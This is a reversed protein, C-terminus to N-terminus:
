CWSKAGGLGGEWNHEPMRARCAAGTAIAAGRRSRSVRPAAPPTSPRRRPPPPKAVRGASRLQRSSCRASRRLRPGRRARGRPAGGGGREQSPLQPLGLTVRIWAPLQRVRQHRRVWGRRRCPALALGAVPRGPSRQRCNAPWSLAVKESTRGSKARPRAAAHPWGDAEATSSCRERSVPSGWVAAPSSTHHLSQSAIACV